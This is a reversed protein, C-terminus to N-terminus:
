LETRYERDWGLTVVPGLIGVSRNAGQLLSDKGAAEHRWCCGSASTFEAQWLSSSARALWCAWLPSSAGDRRQGAIRFVSHEDKFSNPMRGILAARGPFFCGGLNLRRGSKVSGM